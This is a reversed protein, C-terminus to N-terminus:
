PWQDELSNYLQVRKSSVKLMDDRSSRNEDAMNYTRDVINLLLAAKSENLVGKTYGIDKLQHKLLDKVPM